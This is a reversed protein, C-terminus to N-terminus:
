VPKVWVLKWENGWLKLTTWYTLKKVVQNTGTKYFQYYTKGSQVSDMLETAKILDPYAQYLTDTLVNRGIEGSDQDYLVRGGKEMVWIEFSQNKVLPLVYRRILSDPFFLAPIGGFINNGNLVPHVLVSSYFGEVAFFQKSLITQKKSFMDIIHEQGAINAGQFKHYKSPEIIQLIGDNNVYSFEIVFNTEQYLRSLINRILGTDALHNAISDCAISLDKNLSDLSNTIEDSLTILEQPIQVDPSSTNHNCASILLAILLFVSFFNNKM